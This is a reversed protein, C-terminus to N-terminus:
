RPTTEGDLVLLYARALSRAAARIEPGAGADVGSLEAFTRAVEAYREPQVILIWATGASGPGQGNIALQYLGPALPPFTGGAATTRVRGRAVPTSSARAARVPYAAVQYSAGRPGGIVASLDTGGAQARIVGDKFEEGGRVSASVFGEEFRQQIQKLIRALASAAPASAITTTMTYLKKEGTYLALVVSSSPDDDAKQLVDGDHVIAPPTVPRAGGPSVLEWRGSVTFVFGADRGTSQLLLGAAVLGLTCLGRTM